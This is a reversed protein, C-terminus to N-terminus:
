YVHNENMWALRFSRTQCSVFVLFGFSESTVVRHILPILTCLYSCLTCPSSPLSNSRDAINPPVTVTTIWTSSDATTTATTKVKGTSVLVPLSTTIETPVAIVNVLM